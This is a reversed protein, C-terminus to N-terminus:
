IGIADCVVPSCLLAASFVETYPFGHGLFVPVNLSEVLEESVYSIAM